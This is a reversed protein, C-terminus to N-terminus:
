GPGDSQQQEQRRLDCWHSGTGYERPRALIVTWTRSAADHGVGIERFTQPTSGQGMVSERHGSNSSLFGILMSAPTQYGRGINEGWSSWDYDVAALAQPPGFGTVPNYHAFYSYEVMDDTRLQAADSIVDGVAVPPRAQFSAVLDALSGSLHAAAYAAPDRRAENLDYIFQQEEATVETALAPAIGLAM